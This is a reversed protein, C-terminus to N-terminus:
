FFYLSHWTGFIDGYHSKEVEIGTAVNISELFVTFGICALFGAMVSAPLFHVIRTLRFRGLLYFVCGVLFTSCLIMLMALLKQIKM